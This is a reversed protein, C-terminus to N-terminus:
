RARLVARRFGQVLSALQGTPRLRRHGHADPASCGAVDEALLESAKPAPGRPECETVETDPPSAGEAHEAILADAVEDSRAQQEAESMQDWNAPISFSTPKPRAEQTSVQAAQMSTGIPNQSGLWGGFDNLGKAYRPHASLATSLFFRRIM